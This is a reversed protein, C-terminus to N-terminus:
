SINLSNNTFNTIGTANSDLIVTSNNILDLTTANVANGLQAANGSNFNSLQVKGLPSKTTGVTTPVTTNTIVYTGSGAVAATITGSSFSSAVSTNLTAGQGIVIGAGGQFSLAATSTLTANQGISIGLSGSYTNGNRVGFYANSALTASSNAAINLQQMPSSSSALANPFNVNGSTIVNGVNITFNAINGFNMNNFNFNPVSLTNPSGTTGGIMTLTNTAPLSNPTSIHTAHINGNVTLNNNDNQFQISFLAAGSTGIDGIITVNSGGIQINTSAGNTGSSNTINAITTGGTFLVQSSNNTLTITNATVNNSFTPTVGTITIVGLSSNGGIVGNFIHSAGSINLTPFNSKTNTYSDFTNTFTVPSTATISLATGAVGSSTNGLTVVGTASYNNTNGGGFGVGNLTLDMGDYVNIPSIMGHNGSDVLAGLVAGTHTVAIIITGTAGDLAGHQNILDVGVLTQSNANFVLTGTGPGGMIGMGNPNSEAYGFDAWDNAGQGIISSVPNSGSGVQVGSAHAVNSYTLGNAIAVYSSVTTLLSKLLKNKM